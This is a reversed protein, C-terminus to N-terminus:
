AEDEEWPTVQVPYRGPRIVFTATWGGLTMDRFEAGVWRYLTRRSVGLTKAILPVDGRKRHAMARQLTQANAMTMRRGWRDDKSVFARGAIRSM